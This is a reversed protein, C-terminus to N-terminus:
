RVGNSRTKSRTEASDGADIALLRSRAAEKSPHGYRAMVLAGGDEHGLMVSVDFHSAGKELLQTACFHRLDHFRIPKLGAALRDPTTGSADRMTKWLYSLNGKKLVEGKPTHFVFPCDPRRPIQDLARAAQLYPVERELGNKPKGYSGDDKRSRRVHIMDGEIDEWKLGMVEGARLGEWATFTILARFESGHGGLAMCGALMQHYEELTPPRIEETKETAPLRLNSFPNHEVLGVNRADEYMTGIIKSLNRPVGLAWSRASLREVEGLPTPGFDEAFREAAQQYLQRTSFAKRPWEELWREAFSACTENTRQAKLRDRHRGEATKAQTKTKWPGGPTWVQKGGLEFKSCWGGRSKDLWVTLQRGRGARDRCGL